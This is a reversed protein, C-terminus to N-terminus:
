GAGERNTCANQKDEWSAVAALTAGMITERQTLQRLRDRGPSDIGDGRRGDSPFCRHAHWYWSFDRLKRTWATEAGLQKWIEIRM